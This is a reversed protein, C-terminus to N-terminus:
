SVMIHLVKFDEGFAVVAATSDININHNEFTIYKARRNALLM